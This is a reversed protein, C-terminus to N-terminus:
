NLLPNLLLCSMQTIGEPTKVSFLTHINTDWPTKLALNFIQSFARLFALCQRKAGM